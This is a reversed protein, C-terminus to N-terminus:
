PPRCREPTRVHDRRGPQSGRSFLTGGTVVVRDDEHATVVQAMVAPPPSTAWSVLPPLRARCGAQDASPLCIANVQPYLRTLDFFATGRWLPRRSRWVFRLGVCLM